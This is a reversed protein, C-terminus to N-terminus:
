IVAYHYTSKKKRNRNEKIKKSRVRAAATTRETKPQAPEEGSFQNCAVKWILKQKIKTLNNALNNTGGNFIVEYQAKHM